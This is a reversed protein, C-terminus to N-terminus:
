KTPQEESIKESEVEDAASQAASTSDSQLNVCNNEGKGDKGRMIIACLIKDVVLLALLVGLLMASWRELATAGSPKLSALEADVDSSNVLKEVDLTGMNRKWEVKGDRLLVVSVVGRSLEKLVTSEVHYIPFEAMSGDRLAAISDTPVDSLEVLSGGLKNMMEYLENTFSTYYMDAKEHQPVVVLMELGEPSIVDATVDADEEDLVTLQTHQDLYDTPADGIPVRDVFTWTSDPLSDATFGREVGDKEYRFEFELEEDLEDDSLLSTGEPFSRFDILPQINFGYLEVITVFVLCSVGCIWQTYPHYLGAVGRNTLALFILAATIAINKAFTAGNSIIWFDGFCGCDAVPDKLWIYLTLPLMVGMMLLLAWVSTRRFCGTALLGGVMFEASSLMMASLVTLSYPVNLDWLTFYEEFKFVTGWIDIAKVLGSMVFVAGVGIRLLWVVAPVWRANRWGKDCKTAQNHSNM